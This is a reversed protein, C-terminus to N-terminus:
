VARETFDILVADQKEVGAAVIAASETFAKSLEEIFEILELCDDNGGEITEKTESQSQEIYRKNDLYDSTGDYNTKCFDTIYLYDGESMNHRVEFSLEMLEM